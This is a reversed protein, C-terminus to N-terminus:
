HLARWHLPALEKPPAGACARILLMARSAASAAADVFYPPRAAIYRRTGHLLVSSRRATLKLRREKQSSLRRLMLSARPALRSAIGIDHAGVQVKALWANKAEEWVAGDDEVGKRELKLQLLEATSRPDVAMKLDRDCFRRWLQQQLLSPDRSQGNLVVAIHRDVPNVGALSLLRDFHANEM